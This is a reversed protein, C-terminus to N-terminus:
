GEDEYWTPDPVFHFNASGESVSLWMNAVGLIAGATGQTFQSAVALVLLLGALVILRWRMFSLCTLTMRFM